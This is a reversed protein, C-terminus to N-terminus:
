AYHFQPPLLDYGDYRVARGDFYNIIEQNLTWLAVFNAAVVLGVFAYSEYGILDHAQRRFRWALASLAVVVLACTLFQFNLVPPFGWQALQVGITDATILKLITLSLLFARGVAGPALAAM